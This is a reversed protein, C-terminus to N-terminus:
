QESPTVMSCRASSILSPRISTGMIGLLSDGSSSGSQVMPWARIAAANVETVVFMWPGLLAGGAPLRPSACSETPASPLLTVPFPTRLALIKLPERMTQIWLATEREVEAQDVLRSPLVEGREMADLRERIAEKQDDPLLSAVTTRLDAEVESTM